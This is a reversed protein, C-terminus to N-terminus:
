DTSDLFHQLPIEQGDARLARDRIGAWQLRGDACVVATVAPSLNESAKVCKQFYAIMAIM